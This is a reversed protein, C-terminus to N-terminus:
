RRVPNGGARSHRVPSYNCIEDIPTSRELAQAELAYRGRTKVHFRAGLPRPVIQRALMKYRQHETRTAFDVHMTRHAPHHMVPLWLAHDGHPGCGVAAIRMGMSTAPAPRVGMCLVLM